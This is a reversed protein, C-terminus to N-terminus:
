EAEGDGRPFGFHKRIVFEAGRQLTEEEKDIRGSLIEHVLIVPIAVTLGAVTTFLAKWIGGTVAQANVSGGLHLSHFMEVMGLVTGLLGLLPAVRAVVDLLSLHKEWRYVERRVQGDLLLKMNEGDISWHAYAAFFLRHMSSKGAVARRVTERDGSDLAREFAFELAEPNTSAGVFFIAREIAVTFAIISLGLIIWMISGGAQMYEMFGM